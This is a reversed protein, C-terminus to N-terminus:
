HINSSLMLPAVAIAEPCTAAADTLNEMVSMGIERANAGDGACEAVISVSGDDHEIIHVSFITHHTRMMNPVHYRVQRAVDCVSNSKPKSNANSM